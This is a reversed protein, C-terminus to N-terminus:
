GNPYEYDEPKCVDRLRPGHTGLYVEGDPFYAQLTETTVVTHPYECEGTVICPATKWKLHTLAWFRNTGTMLWKGKYGPGRHNIIILPNVLGCESINDALAARWEERGDRCVKDSSNIEAIPYEPCYSIDYM